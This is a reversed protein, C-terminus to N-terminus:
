GGLIQKMQDIETQQVASISKAMAIMDSNRGQAIETKAMTIAGEHHSIMSQLWTKDFPAGTLKELKAMTSEDVMGPVAAADVMGPMTAAGHDHAPEADENWQTLLATMAAMEPLQQSSINNAMAIVAQNTSRGPVLNALDIAQHHHMVMDRAFAADVANHPNAEESTM